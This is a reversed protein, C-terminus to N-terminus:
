LIKSLRSFSRNAQSAMLQVAAENLALGSAKILNLNYLGLKKLKGNKNKIAQIFHLCEHIAPTDLANFDIDKEFYISDNKYYYKAASNDQFIALYMNVRSLANSLDTKNINHEPFAGCIKESIISAINSTELATLEKVIQIGAKKLAKVETMIINRENRLIM